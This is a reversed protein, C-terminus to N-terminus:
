YGGLSLIGFINDTKRVLNDTILIDHYIRPGKLKMNIDGQACLEFLRLKNRCSDQDNVSIKVESLAGHM